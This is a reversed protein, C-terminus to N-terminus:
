RNKRFNNPEQWRARGLRVPSTYARAYHIYARAYTRAYAAYMRAYAHTHRVHTSHMRMYTRVHLLVTCEIKTKHPPRGFIILTIQAEFETLFYWEEKEWNFFYYYPFIVSRDVWIKCFYVETKRFFFFDSRDVLLWKQKLFYVETKVNKRKRSFRFKHHM